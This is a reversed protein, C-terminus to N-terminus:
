VLQNMPLTKVSSRKRSETRERLNKREAGDMGGNIVRSEIAARARARQIGKVPNPEERKPKVGGERAFRISMAVMAM